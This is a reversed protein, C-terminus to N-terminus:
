KKKLDQRALIKRIGDRFEEIEREGQLIGIEVEMDQCEGPEIWPLRKEKKLTARGVTKTNVPEIGVVYDGEDLMKWENLFPLTVTRFRLYLGLGGQLRPNILAARAYGEADPIMRHLFDQGQFGARPRSFQRVQGLHREANRDYPEIEVSSLELESSEDLLPFGCNIHYLVTLPSSRFGFNEVRDRIRLHKAGLATTISRELRLKDGFLACEEVTGSIEIRYEEGEWRSNDRVVASALGAYRGHLGLEQDGDREPDGFYTLGCTTMLGGFFTNLWELGAPNHFAPHTVGGPALYVLNIGQFTCNAIDLGRGPLVTFVLGGGTNVEIAEVGKARGATYEFHRTGGIQQLNGTRRELERKSFSQGLIKM